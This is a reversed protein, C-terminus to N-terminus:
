KKVTFGFSRGCGAHRAHRAQTNQFLHIMRDLKERLFHIGTEALWSPALIRQGSCTSPFWKTVCAPNGSKERYLMGFHPFICWIMM